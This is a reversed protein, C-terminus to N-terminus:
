SAKSGLHTSKAQTPTWTGGVTFAYGGKVTRAGEEGHTLNATLGPNFTSTAM